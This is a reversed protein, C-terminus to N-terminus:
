PVRLKIVKNVLARWMGRVQALNIWDMGGCGMDELDMKINGEWRRRDEVMEFSKNSININHSQKHVMLM